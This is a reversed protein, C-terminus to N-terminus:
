DFLADDFAHTGLHSRRCTYQQSIEPNAKSVLIPRNSSGGRSIFCSAGMVGLYERTARAIGSGNPRIRKPRYNQTGVREIPISKETLKRVECLVKYWNLLRM